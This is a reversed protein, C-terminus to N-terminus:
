CAAFRKPIASAPLTYVRILLGVCSATSCRMAASSPPTADSKTADPMAAVAKAIM